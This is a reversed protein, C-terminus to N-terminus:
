ATPEFHLQADYHTHIDIFGPLVHLGDADIVRGTTVLDADAVKGVRVIRGDRVAVDAIYAPVGSGDVVRGGRVVLDYAAGPQEAGV